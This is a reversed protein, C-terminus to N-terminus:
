QVVESIELKVGQTGVKVPASLGQLDGPQPTADGRKSIRAGIVVEPLSSLSRDAVMAMSDDLRFDLPLDRVQRRLLAVPMRSGQVPRAFIFVTDDQSAKSKLAESVTLRGSVFAGGAAPAAATTTSAPAEGQTLAQVEAISAEIQRTFDPDTSATRAHEWYGLAQAYDKREYAATAALALAKVNNPDLALAKNILVMPQGHLTRGQAVALSDAYDALVQADDPRLDALAAYAKGAESFKGLMDYSHALMAWATADKPNTKVQASAQDVM